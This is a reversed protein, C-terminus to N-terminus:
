GERKRSSWSHTELTRPFVWATRFLAWCIWPCLSDLFCHCTSAFLGGGGLRDTFLYVLNPFFYLISGSYNTTFCWGTDVKPQTTTLPLSTCRDLSGRRRHCATWRGGVTSSLLEAQGDPGALSCPCARCLDTRKETSVPNVIQTAMWSGRNSYLLQWVSQGSM